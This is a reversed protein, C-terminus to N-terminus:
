FPCCFTVLQCIRTALVKRLDLCVVHNVTPPTRVLSYMGHNHKALFELPWFCKLVWVQCWPPWYPSRVRRYTANGHKAVFLLQWLMGCFDLVQCCSACHPSRVRLYTDYGHKAVSVLPWFWNVFGYDVLYRVIPSDTGRTYALFYGFGTHWLTVLTFIRVRCSLPFHPPDFGRIRAM